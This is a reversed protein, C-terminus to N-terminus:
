ALFCIFREGSIETFFVQRLELGISAHDFLPESFGDCAEQDVGRDERAEHLGSKPPSSSAAGKKCSGQPEMVRTARSSAWAKPRDASPTALLAEEVIRTEKLM